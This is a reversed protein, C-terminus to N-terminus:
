GLCVKNNLVLLMSLVRKENGGRECSDPVQEDTSELVSGKHGETNDGGVPVANKYDRNSAEDVKEEQDPLEYCAVMVVDGGRTQEKKRVWLSETSEVDIALCLELYELQKECSPCNGKRM